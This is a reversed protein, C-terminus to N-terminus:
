NMREVLSETLRLHPYREELWMMSLVASAIEYRNGRSIARQLLRDLVRFLVRAEEDEKKTGM